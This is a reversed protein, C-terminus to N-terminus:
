GPPPAAMLEVRQGGPLVGFARPEGWLERADEVEFGDSRLAEVTAAFDDVVLAPHGLQPVTAEPTAILHVQTASRELWTVYPAIPDPAQVPEFGALQFFRAAREIDDTGVELSVHHLM